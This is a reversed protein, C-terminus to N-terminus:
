VRHVSNDDPRAAARALGRNGRSPSSVPNGTISSSLCKQDLTIECRQQHILPLHQLVIKNTSRLPNEVDFQDAV